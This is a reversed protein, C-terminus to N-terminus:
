KGGWEQNIRELEDPTLTEIGLNEADFVLSEILDSMQKTDYTSSGYYLIVNVCGDIKSETREAQWGLGKATWGSILKDAANEIICVTDSVGGINKIANRYVDVKNLSLASAIKDILVWAYANADLSRRNRYKKVEVNIDTDKLADFSETFDEDIEVTIRQKQNRGTNLDILRGRM